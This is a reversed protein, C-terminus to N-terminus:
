SSNFFTPSYTAAVLESMRWRPMESIIQLTGGCKHCTLSADDPTPGEANKPEAAPATAGLLHRCHALQESRERHSLLGFNRIRVFGKPLVHQLFRRLFEDASLTMRRWRNGHAYDKYRFTIQGDTISEIRENSIAVRYTYRALYKLVIEPGGVPPQSYVVWEAAYLSSLFAVHAISRRASGPRRAVDTTREPIGNESLRPAQGSLRPEVSEGASFLRACLRDLADRRGDASLGGGPVIVHVHPHLQLNQGWTHLVMLGGIRAGLHKPTAAVELLTERVARFLHRYFLAPHAAAVAALEHPVTFVVHFYGVPLLEQRRAELWAARQKAQCQPCHRDGCSNYMPTEDGCGSCRYALRELYEKRGLTVAYLFRLACVCQNFTSWSVKRQFLHLQYQRVDELTLDEPSRRFHAAFQAVQAVYSEVTRPARNRLQLDEIYRQRLPTM